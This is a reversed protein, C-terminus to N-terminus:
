EHNTGRDITLGNLHDMEHQACYAAVGKLKRKIPKWAPTFGQIIIQNSRVMPVILGPYSLCGERSTGKGGYFKTIVPNIWAQKFGNADMVFIRLPSGIQPAALGIGRKQYMIEWLADILNDELIAGKHVPLTEQHLTPDNSPILERPLGFMDLYM